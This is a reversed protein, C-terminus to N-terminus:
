MLSHQPHEEKDISSFIMEILQQVMHVENKRHSGYLGDGEPYNKSMDGNVWVKVRGTRDLGIQDEEVRFYGAHQYLHQYGELAEMMVYLADALPIEDIDCLRLSIHELYVNAAYRGSCWGAHSVPLIHRSSVVPTLNHRM